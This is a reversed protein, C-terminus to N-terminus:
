LFDQFDIIKFFFDSEQVSPAVGNVHILIPLCAAGRPIKLRKMKSKLEQIIKSKIPNRSFKFEFLYYTNFRTQILYDVQCSEGPTPSRQFYPNDFMIDKPDIKLIEWLHQRNELILNEFQYGMGSEWGSLESVKMSEFQGNIVRDRNPEIYKLYFRLYNDKIRYVSKSSEEGTRTSLTFYRRLFGAEILENLYGTLRGSSPYHTKRSIEEYTLPQKILASVIKKYQGGRKDYLDHFVREFDNFLVGGETFCQRKINEDANLQGQIQEIYWPVGGTIALIKFKEYASYNFKIADLFRNCDSLLLPNVTMTWSIRGFYGTSGLINEEMWTSVSSCLILILKANKKFHSEWIVKLKPLFEPDESGMWSIEDFFIIIRGKQAQNGLLIFLKSWDDITLEPLGTQASLQRAFENRQMQATIGKQPALGEFAYLTMGRAFEHVLRSKGIRRRGKIVAVSATKKTLLAKLEEVEKQRGIFPDINV